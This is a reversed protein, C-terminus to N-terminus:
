DSKRLCEWGFVQCKDEQRKLSSRVTLKESLSILLMKKTKSGGVPVHGINERFYFPGPNDFPLDCLGLAIKM